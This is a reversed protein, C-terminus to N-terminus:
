NDEIVNDPNCIHLHHILEKNTLIQFYAIKTRFEPHDAVDVCHSRAAEVCNIMDNFLQESHIYIKYNENATIKYM